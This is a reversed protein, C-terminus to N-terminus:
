TSLSFIAEDIDANIFAGNIVNAVNIGNINFNFTTPKSFIHINPHMTFLTTKIKSREHNGPVIIFPISLEAVKIIPEFALYILTDPFKSRYFLDGGHVVFDVKKEFAMSLAKHFNVFHSNKLNAANMGPTIALNEGLHTDALFLVRIM